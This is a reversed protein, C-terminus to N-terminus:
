GFNTFIKEVHPATLMAAPLGHHGFIDMYEQALGQHGNIKMGAILDLAAPRFAAVKTLRKLGYIISHLVAPENRSALITLIDLDEHTLLEEWAGQSVGSAVSAATCINESKAFLAGYRVFEARDLRRRADITIGVSAAATSKPHILAYESFAQLFARSRYMQTVVSDGSKLAIGSAFIQSFVQELAEVQDEGDPFRDQLAAIAATQRDRRRQSPMDGDADEYENTCLIDFLDFYDPRPLAAHLDAAAAQVHASQQQDQEVARLIRHIKWAVPLSVNGSDLRQRIM